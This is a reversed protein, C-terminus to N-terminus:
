IRAVVWMPKVKGEHKGATGGVSENERQADGGSGSARGAGGGLM